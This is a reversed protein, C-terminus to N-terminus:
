PLTPGWCETTVTYTNTGADDATGTVGCAAFSVRGYGGVVPLDPLVVARVAGADLETASSPLTLDLGPNRVWGGDPGFNVGSGPALYHACVKGGTVSGAAAAVKVRISTIGGRLDCGAQNSFPTVGTGGTSTVSGTRPAGAFVAVAFLLAVAILARRSPLRM